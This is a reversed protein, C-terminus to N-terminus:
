GPFLDAQSAYPFYLYNEPRRTMNAPKAKRIYGTFTVASMRNNITKLRSNGVSVLKKHVFLYLKGSSGQQYFILRRPKLSRQLILVKNQLLRKM